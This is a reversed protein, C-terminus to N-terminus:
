ELQLPDAGVPNGMAGIVVKAMVANGANCNICFCSLAAAGCLVFHYAFKTPV